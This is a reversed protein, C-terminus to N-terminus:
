PKLNFTQDVEWNARVDIEKPFYIVDEAQKKDLFNGTDWVENKNEDYIVRLTFLNPELLNFDIKTNNESYQSAIM